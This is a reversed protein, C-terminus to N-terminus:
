VLSAVADTSLARAVAITIMVLLALPAVLFTTHGARQTRRDFSFVAWSGVRGDQHGLRMAALSDAGDHLGGALPCFLPSAVANKPTSGISYAVVIWFITGYLAMFWCPLDSLFDNTWSQVKNTKSAAM